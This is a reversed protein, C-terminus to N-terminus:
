TCYDVLNKLRYLCKNAASAEFVTPEHNPLELGAQEPTVVFVFLWGGGERRAKCSSARVGDVTPLDVM